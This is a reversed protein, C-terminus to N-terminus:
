FVKCVNQMAHAHLRKRKKPASKQYCNRTSAATWDGSVEDTENNVFPEENRSGNDNEDLSKNLFYPSRKIVKRVLSKMNRKDGDLVSSGQGIADVISRCGQEKHSTLFPRSPEDELELLFCSDPSNATNGAAISM